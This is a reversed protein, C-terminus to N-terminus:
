KVTFSMSPFRENKGLFDTPLEWLVEIEAGSALPALPVFAVCGDAVETENAAAAYTVLVGPVGQSGAYVRCSVGALLMPTIARAFHLTLPVGVTDTPQKGAAALVAMARTGLDGVVASGVVGSQQHHPWCMPLGTRTALAPAAVDLVWAGAYVSAGFLERGPHLLVDRQAPNCLWTAMAATAEKQRSWLVTTGIAAPATPLPILEKPKKKRDSEAKTLQEDYKQTALVDPGIAVCFGCPGISAAARQANLADVLSRARVKAARDPAKEDPVPDVLMAKRLEVSRGWFERWEADIKPLDAQTRRLFEAEVEPASKIAPTQSQDLEHLLEPRWHLLYHCIAWAKVRQETTFRAASLLVLESTRTDSKSWASEEAIQQWVALDPALTKKTSVAETREKSQELLFTLTRGFLFGCAAHGLGENLGDTTIGAADQVVGRVVQDRSADLGLHAKHLRLDQKEYQVFAQDVDTKLFALRAADFQDACLDLMAAYVEFSHVFVMTRTRTPVFMSGRWTGFLTHTLLLARECDQALVKMDAPPLTGWVEFHQSRVGVHPVNVAELWPHKRDGMEFTPIDARRLWDCAGRIARARRLMAVEMATGAYGEFPQLALAATAEKDGPQLRIVRQWHRLAKPEDPVKAWATALSRHEAVLEKRLAAQEQEVKKIAAATGKMDKDLVLRNDDKRWTTGVRVFGCKDRAREDNEAYDLWVEKRLDLARQHQRQAQWADALAHLAPVARLTLKQERALLEAAAQAVLSPVILALVAAVALVRM